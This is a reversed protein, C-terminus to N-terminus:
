LGQGGELDRAGAGPSCAEATDDRPPEIYVACQTATSLPTSAGPKRQVAGVVGAAPVAADPGEGADGDSSSLKRSGGTKDWSDDEDAFDHYLDGSAAGHAHNNQGKGSCGSGSAGYLSLYKAMERAALANHQGASVGPSSHTSLKKIISDAQRLQTSTHLLWARLDSLVYVQMIVCFILAAALVGILLTHSSITSNENPLTADPDYDFTASVMGIYHVGSLSIMGNLACAIRLIDLSPFVSLIRFFVWFGGIVSAIAVLVSVAVLGANYRITGQFEMSMMGLYHMAAVGGGAIVGGFVIRSLSHSFVIRLIRFDGMQKLEALSYKDSAHQMVMEIIEKKSKNFCKDTSACYLGLLEMITVVILSVALYTGNYRVPVNVGDISLTFSATTIYHVAWIGVGGLSIAVFTMLAIRSTSSKALTSLRYQECLSVAAFAGIFGVGTSLIVMGAHYEVDLLVM